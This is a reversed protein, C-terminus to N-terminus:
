NWRKRGNWECYKCVAVSVVMTILSVVLSPLIIDGPTVAGAEARIKIVTVPVLQIASMNIAMFMCMENSAYISSRNIKELSEMAKLGFVTASNGVGFVNAAFSMLIYSIATEDKLKPFVWQIVPKSKVGVWDILGAGKAINMLGSWVAMIGALGIVFYVGRECSEFIATNIESLTGTFAALVVGFFIMGFWMYSMGEM